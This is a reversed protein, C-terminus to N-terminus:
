KVLCDFVNKSSFFFKKNLMLCIENLIIMANLMVFIEILIIALVCFLSYAINASRVKYGMLSIFNNILRKLSVYQFFTHAFKKQFSVM